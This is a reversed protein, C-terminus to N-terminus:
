ELYAKCFTTETNEEKKRRFIFTTQIEEELDGMPM